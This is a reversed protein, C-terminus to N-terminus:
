RWATSSAGPSCPTSSRASRSTTSCRIAPSAPPRAPPGRARSSRRTSTPCAGRLPDQREAASGRLRRAHGRDPAPRPWHLLYLDIRDTGLRRLSRECAAVTGRRSANEPLVKTVLFVESRRGAIAEGVIEEVAGRGYMEATDVLTMGLDLGARLARSPTPGRASSWTGPARASSPSPSGPGASPAASWPGLTACGSAVRFMRRSFSPLLLREYGHLGSPPM